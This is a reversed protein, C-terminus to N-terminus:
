LNYLDILITQLECSMKNDYDTDDMLLEVDEISPYDSYNKANYHQYKIILYRFIRTEM